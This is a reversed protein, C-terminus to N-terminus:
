YFILCNALNALHLDMQINKKEYFEKISVKKGTIKFFYKEQGYIDTLSRGVYFFVMTLWLSLIRYLPIATLLNEAESFDTVSTILSAVLFWKAIPIALQMVIEYLFTIKIGFAECQHAFEKQPGWGALRSTGLDITLEHSGVDAVSLTAALSNMESLLQQYTKGFFAQYLDPPFMFYIKLTVYGKIAHLKIQMQQFSDTQSSQTFVINYLQYPDPIPTKSYNHSIGLTVLSVIFTFGGVPNFGQSLWNLTHFVPITAPSKPVLLALLISFATPLISLLFCVIMLSHIGRLHSRIQSNQNDVAADNSESPSM